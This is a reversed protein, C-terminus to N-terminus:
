NSTILTGPKGINFIMKYLNWLEGKTDYFVINGEYYKMNKKLIFALM